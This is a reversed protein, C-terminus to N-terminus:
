DSSLDGIGRSHARGMVGMRGVDKIIKLRYHQKGVRIILTISGQQPFDVFNLIYVFSNHIGM